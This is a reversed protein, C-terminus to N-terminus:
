HLITTCLNDAVQHTRSMVLALFFPCTTFSRIGAVGFEERVTKRGRGMGDYNWLMHYEYIALHIVSAEDRPNM